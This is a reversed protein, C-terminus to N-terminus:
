SADSEPSEGPRVPARATRRTPSGTGLPALSLGLEDPRAAERARFWAMCPSPIVQIM